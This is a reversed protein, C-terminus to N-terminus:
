ATATQVTWGTPIGDNGRVDWEADPNKVFTGTSAVGNVWGSTYSYSPTTTFLAKIYNLKSCGMFMQFYCEFELTTAPLAPATTLATCYTFMGQYCNEALTTAPLEPAATLSQCYGFMFKYCHRALTTAPLVLASADVLNSMNSFVRCYGYEQSIIIKDEFDKYGLSM